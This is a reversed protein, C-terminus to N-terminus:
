SILAPSAYQQSQAIKPPRLFTRHSEDVLKQPIARSELAYHVRFHRAGPVAVPGLLRQPQRLRALAPHLVWRIGTKADVAVIADLPMAIALPASVSFVFVGLTIPLSQAMQPFRPPLVSPNLVKRMRLAIGPSFACGRQTRSYPSACARSKSNRQRELRPSYREGSSIRKRISQLLFHGSAYPASPFATNASVAGNPLRRHSGRQGLIRADPGHLAALEEGAASGTIVEAGMLHRLCLTTRSTCRSQELDAGALDARALYAGALDAGPRDFFSFFIDYSIAATPRTISVRQVELHSAQPCTFFATEIQRMLPIRTVK